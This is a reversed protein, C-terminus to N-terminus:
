EPGTSCHKGISTKPAVSDKHRYVQNLHYFRWWARCLGAPSANMRILTITIRFYRFCFSSCLQFLHVVSIYFKELPWVVWPTKCKLNCEGMRVRIIPAAVCSHWNAMLLLKPNPIKGLSVCVLTHVPPAPFHVVSGSILPRGPKGQSAPPNLLKFSFFIKLGLVLSALTESVKSLRYDM